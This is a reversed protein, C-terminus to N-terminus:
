LSRIVRQIPLHITFTTGQGLTSSVCITGEHKEVITKVISLGLGAGGLRRSRAKNVTYFRDFIHELDQPPIGIGKDSINIEVEDAKQDITVTIQAPPNSYKAANDLLNIIALELIEPDACVIFADKAKKITIEAKDYVALVVQRCTEILAVLDCEQFRSEPLNEIDALTLLNKVLNDMRQCNRVIKEIIDSLMEPPLEPMEQLTEAFGKIITIPTRLEHSANAVFDKGMELVRYHSSKDQLVIIAGSGQAKPAAILDFYIKKADGLSLSDTLISLKEQCTSLLFHCKELLSLNQKGATVPFPKGLLQRKPINLMKSGIFNIYRIIMESDVAIVGEGLSELIAEKENREDTLHKIQQRVKESLSNLAQALHFFDDKSDISSSLTITPISDVKGAQYPKIAQIIQSIPHNIRYLSLWTIVGFFVLALLFFFLLWMDFENAFEEVQTYAFSSQILYTKGALSFPITVYALKTPSSAASGVSYVVKKELVQAVDPYSSPHPLQGSALTKEALSDYLVKGESDYICVGFFIYTHLKQVAKLMAEQDSSRKLELILNETNVRLTHYAIQTAAKTIFPFAILIFAIFGVLQSLIVKKRFALRRRM